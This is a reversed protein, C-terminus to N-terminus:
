RVHLCDWALLHIITKLASNFADKEGRQGIRRAGKWSSPKVPDGAREGCGPLPALVESCCAESMVPLPLDVSTQPKM